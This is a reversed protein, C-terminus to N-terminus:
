LAAVKEMALAKKENAKIPGIKLSDALDVLCEKINDGWGEACSANFGKANKRFAFVRWKGWGSDDFIHVSSLRFKVKLAEITNEIEM